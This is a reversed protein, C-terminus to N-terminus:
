SPGPRPGSDALPHLARAVGMVEDEPVPSEGGRAAATHFAGVLERLGPYAPQRRAARGVLNAAAGTLGAGALAFPRAVKWARSAGGPEMVAHGHFLDARGTAETGVVTWQNAPPRGGMSVLLHVAVGAVEGTASLEGPRPRSTRWSIGALGAPLFRHALSLFHPLIELAIRDRDADSRGEAGTSRAEGVLHLVGGLRNQERLLKRVGSQFPFQHVAGLLVGRERAEALLRETAAAHVALPKEVLVHRGHRLAREVLPEHTGSPTCVHVVTGRAGAPTHDLDALDAVVTAAQSRGALRRARELDPDVVAVVRGGIRGIEYAHWRGMLGAGVIVADLGPARRRTTSM